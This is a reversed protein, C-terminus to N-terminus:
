GIRKVLKRGLAIGPTEIYKFALWALGYVVPIFLVVFASLRRLFNLSAFSHEQVRKGGTASAVPQDKTM